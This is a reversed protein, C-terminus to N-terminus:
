AQLNLFGGSSQMNKMNTEFNQLFSILSSSGGSGGQSAILTDYSSQLDSVHPDKSSTNSTATSNGAASASTNLGSAANPDKALQQILSQLGSSMQNSSSTGYPNTKSLVSSAANSSGSSNKSQLTTLLNNLFNDMNQAIEQAQSVMGTPSPSSLGALTTANGSDVGSLSLASFLSDNLGSSTSSNSTDGFLPNSISSQGQLTQLASTIQQAQVLHGGNLADGLKGMLTQTSADSNVSSASQSLASFINKAGSLDGGNLASGLSQLNANSAVSSSFAVNQSHLNTNLSSISM